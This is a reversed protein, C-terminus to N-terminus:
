KQTATFIQLSKAIDKRNGFIVHVTKITAIKVFLLLLLDNKFMLKHFAVFADCKTFTTVCSFCIPKLDNHFRIKLRFTALILLLMKM